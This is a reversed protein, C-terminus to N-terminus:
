RGRVTCCKHSKYSAIGHWQDGLAEWGFLIRLKLLKTLFSVIVCFDTFSFIFNSSMMIMMFINSSLVKDAFFKVALNASDFKALLIFSSDFFTLAIYVFPNVFSKILLNQIRFPAFYKEEPINRFQKTNIDALFYMLYKLSVVRISKHFTLPIGSFFISFIFLDCCNEVLKQQDNHIM